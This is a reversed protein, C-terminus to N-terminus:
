FFFIVFRTIEFDPFVTSVITLEFEEHFRKMTSSIEKLSDPIIVTESIKQGISRLYKGLWFLNKDQTEGKLLEDGIVILGIKM